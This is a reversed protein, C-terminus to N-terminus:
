EDFLQEPEARLLPDGSSVNDMVPLVKEGLITETAAGVIIMEAAEYKNNMKWEGSSAGQPATNSLRLAAFQQVV